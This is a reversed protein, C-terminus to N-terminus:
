RLPQASNYFAANTPSLPQLASRSCTHAIHSSHLASRREDDCASTSPRDAYSQLHQLEKDSNDGPRARSPGSVNFYREMNEPMSAADEAHCESPQVAAANQSISGNADATKAVRYGSTGLRPLTSSALKSAIPGISAATKPLGHWLKETAPFRSPSSSGRPLKARM